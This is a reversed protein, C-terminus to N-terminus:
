LVPFRLDRYPKVVGDSLSEKNALGCPGRLIRWSNRPNRRQHTNKM